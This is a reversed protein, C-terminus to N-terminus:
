SSASRQTSQQGTTEAAQAPEPEGLPMLFAFCSGRNPESRVWLRGGHQEVLRKTIALGLGTGLSNGDSSSLQSFEEFIRRQDAPEIGVGNDEVEILASDEQRSARVRVDGGAPTFKLANSLLNYLIQKFRMRDGFVYLGGEVDSAVKIRKAQVLPSLTSIVEPVTTGVSFTERQLELRGAEIKSLDLVDNVLQLLHKGGERIHEAWRRQKAGLAPEETLLTAFGLVANLPTRLEHSMTALFRTKVETAREVERNRLELQRNQAEL